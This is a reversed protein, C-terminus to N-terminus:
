LLMEVEKRSGGGLPVWPFCFNLCLQGPAHTVSGCACLNNTNVPDSFLEGLGERTEGACRQPLPHSNPVLGRWAAAGAAGRVPSATGAASASHPGGAGPSLASGLSLPQVHTIRGHVNTALASPPLTWSGRTQLRTVGPQPM